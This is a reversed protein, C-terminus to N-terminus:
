RLGGPAHFVNRLMFYIWVRSSPRTCAGQHRPQEEFPSQRASRRLRMSTFRDHFLSSARVRTVRRIQANRGSAMIRGRGRWIEMSGSKSRARDRWDVAPRANKSVEPSSRFFSDYESSKYRAVRQACRRAAHPKLRPPRIMIELKSSMSFCTIRNQAHQRPSHLNM